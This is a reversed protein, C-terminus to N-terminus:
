RSKTYQSEEEQIKYPFNYKPMRKLFPRPDFAEPGHVGKGKWIGEALLEMVIVPGTATQLSVAQCGYNRMSEQNDTAQYIYVERRKGDKFGTVWAGVCTKGSMKDGLSAPNPLCAALVEIPSVKVGRINVPEKQHLGLMKIVKIVNIFKEGLGYKFTVRKCPIYRPILVVEEHEIDVVELPGIGEPFNFVEINEFPPITFWGREKEWVLPPDTCEEITDLISFAPAFEYGSVEIAAGDRIGIEDIEDFLEISAYKAFIDSVGPDMGNGLIALLGKDEWKAAQNWQHSGMNMSYGSMAMDLYNCGAEYAADFITDNYFNSVANMILDVGHKRAVQVIQIIDRADIQEVPFKELAGLRNQVTKARELNYDALVMKELWLRERGVVAIAEGVGGVGILLVKM